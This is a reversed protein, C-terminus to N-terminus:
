SHRQLQLFYRHLGRGNEVFWGALVPLYIFGWFLINGSDHWIFLISLACITSSLLMAQWRQKRNSIIFAALVTFTMSLGVMLSTLAMFLLKNQTWVVGPIIIVATGWVYPILALTIVFGDRRNHWLFRGYRWLLGIWLVLLLFSWVLSFQGVDLFLLDASRWVALGFWWGILLNSRLRLSFGLMLLCLLMAFLKALSYNLMSTALVNITVLPITALAFYLWNRKWHLRHYRAALMQPSGLEQLLKAQDPEPERELGAEIHSAMEALIEDRESQPLERLEQALEDLYAEFENM